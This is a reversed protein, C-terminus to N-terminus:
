LEKKAYIHVSFLYSLFFVVLVALAILAMIAQWPLAIQAFGSVWGLLGLKAGLFGAAFLAVAVAMIAFRGKEAGFKYMAPFVIAQLVLIALGGGIAAVMGEVLDGEGGHILDAALYILGSLLLGGAMVMLTFLYRAGVIKKAGLPLSRAYSNWGYFEDYTFVSISLILVMASIFSLMYTNSAPAMLYVGGYILVFIVYGRITKKMNILDHYIMSKM